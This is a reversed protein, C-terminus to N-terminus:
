FFSIQQSKIIKEKKNKKGVLINMSAYQKETVILSRVSGLSPVLRSIRSEHLKDFMNLVSNQNKIKNKIITQWM